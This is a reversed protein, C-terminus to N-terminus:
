SSQSVIDMIRERYKKHIEMCQKIKSKKGPTFGSGMAAGLLFGGIIKAAKDAIQSMEVAAFCTGITSAAVGGAVGTLVAMISKKRFLLQHVLGGVIGMFLYFFILERFTVGEQQFVAVIANESLLVVIGAGAAGGACSLLLDTKINIRVLNKGNHCLSAVCIVLGCYGCAAISGIPVRGGNHIEYGVLAWMAGVVLMAPIKAKWSWEFADVLLANIIDRDPKEMKVSGSKIMGIYQQLTSICKYEESYSIKFVSAGLADIEREVEDIVTKENM